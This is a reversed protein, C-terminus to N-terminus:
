IPRHLHRKIHICRHPITKSKKSSTSKTNSNTSKRTSISKPRWRTLTTRSLSVEDRLAPKRSVFSFYLRCRKQKQRQSRGQLWNPKANRWNRLTTRLFRTCTKLTFGHKLSSAMSTPSNKSSANSIFQYRIKVPSTTCGLSITSENILSCSPSSTLRYAM